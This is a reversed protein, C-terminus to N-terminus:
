ELVHNDGRALDFVQAIKLDDKGLLVPLLSNVRKSRLSAAVKENEIRVLRGVVLSRRLVKTTSLQVHKEHSVIM